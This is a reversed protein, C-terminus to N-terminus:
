IWVALIAGSILLCVLYYGVNLVYLSFPKQEWLVSGFAVTAIFGLWAILGVFVGELATTAVAYSVFHALIFTMLLATLLGGVYRWAMHTPKMKKPDIKMLRMWLKGFLPGYWLGGLVFQILGAVLVAVYNISVM